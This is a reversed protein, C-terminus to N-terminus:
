GQPLRFALYNAFAAIEDQNPRRGELRSLLSQISEAVVAPNSLEIQLEEALERPRM